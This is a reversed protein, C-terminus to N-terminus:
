SAMLPGTISCRGRWPERRVRGGGGRARGHPIRLRPERPHQAHRPTDPALYAALAVLEGALPASASAAQISAKWTSAVTQIYSVEPNRDFLAQAPLEDLLELYEDFSTGSACYAAAHSLALPLYGLAM